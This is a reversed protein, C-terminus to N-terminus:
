VGTAHESILHTVISKPFPAADVGRGWASRTRDAQASTGGNDILPTAMTETYRLRIDGRDISEDVARVAATAGQCGDHEVSNIV